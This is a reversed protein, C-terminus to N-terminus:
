TCYLIQFFSNASQPNEEVKSGDNILVVNFSSYYIIMM